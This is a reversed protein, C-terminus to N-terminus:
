LIKVAWLFKCFWNPFNWLSLYFLACASSEYGTALISSTLYGSVVVISKTWLNFYSHSVLYLGLFGHTQVFDVTTLYKTLYFFWTFKQYNRKQWRLKSLSKNFSWVTLCIWKFFTVNEQPMTKKIQLNIILTIKDQLM